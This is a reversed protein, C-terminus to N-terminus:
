HSVHLWSHLMSFGFNVQEVLPELLALVITPDNVRHLGQLSHIHHLNLLVRIGVNRINFLLVFASLFLAPYLLNMILLVRFPVVICVLGQKVEVLTNVIQTLHGLAIEYKLLLCLLAVRYSRCGDLTFLQMRRFLLTFGIFLLLFGRLVEIHLCHTHRNKLRLEGTTSQFLTLTSLIATSFVECEFEISM